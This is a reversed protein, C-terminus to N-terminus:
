AWLSDFGRHVEVGVRHLVFDYRTMNVAYSEAPKTAPAHNFKCIQCNDHTTFLDFVVEVLSMTMVRM